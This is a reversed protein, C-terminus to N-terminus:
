RILFTRKEVLGKEYMDGTVEDVLVGSVHAAGVMSYSLGRPRLIIPLCEGFLFTVNDNKRVKAVAVGFFGMETVFFCRGPFIHKLLWVLPDSFEAASRFDLSSAAARGALAEYQERLSPASDNSNDRGATLM